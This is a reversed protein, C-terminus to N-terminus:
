NALAARYLAADMVHSEKNCGLQTAYSRRRGVAKMLSGGHVFSFCINSNFGRVLNSRFNNRSKTAKSVPDQSSRNERPALM